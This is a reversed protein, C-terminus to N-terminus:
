EVKIRGVITQQAINARLINLSNTHGSVSTTIGEIRGVIPFQAALVQATLPTQSDLHGTIGSLVVVQQQQQRKLLASARKNKVLASTM